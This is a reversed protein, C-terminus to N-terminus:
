AMKYVLSILFLRNIYLTHVSFNSVHGCFRIEELSYRTWIRVTIVTKFVVFCFFIAAFVRCLNGDSRGCFDRHQLLQVKGCDIETKIDPDSDSLSEVGFERRWKICKVLM